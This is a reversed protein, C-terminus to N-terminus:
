PRVLVPAYVPVDANELQAYFCASTLSWSRAVLTLREEREDQSEEQLAVAILEMDRQYQEKLLPSRSFDCNTTAM